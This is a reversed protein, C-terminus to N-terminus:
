RMGRATRTRRPCTLPYSMIEHYKAPDTLETKLKKVWAETYLYDGHANDFVCYKSDTGTPSGDGRRPRVGYYYAARAHHSSPM